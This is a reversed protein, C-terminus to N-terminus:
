GRMAGDRGKGWVYCMCGHGARAAVTFPLLMTVKVVVITQGGELSMLQEVLLCPYVVHTGPRQGPLLLM